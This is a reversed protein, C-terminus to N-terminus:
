LTSAWASRRLRSLCVLRRMVPLEAALEGATVPPDVVFDVLVHAARIVRVRNLTEEADELV